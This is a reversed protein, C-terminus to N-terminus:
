VDNRGRILNPTVGATEIVDNRASSRYTMAPKVRLRTDIIWLVERKTM